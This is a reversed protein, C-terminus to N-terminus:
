RQIIPLYVSYHSTIPTPSSTVSTPSPTVTTSPTPSPTMSTSPFVCISLFNWTCDSGTEGLATAGAFLYSQYNNAGDAIYVETKKSSTQSKFIAFLDPKNDHNFDLVNFTWNGDPIESLITPQHALFTQYGDSGNLVHLETHGSGTGTKQIAYIDPRSDNNYDNVVFDWDGNSGTDGLATATALIYTQYNDAGNAIYVEASNSNTKSRFIAYLDPHRDNNYDAVAFAWTGDNGTEGLITSQNALFSQYHDIGNLIHLETKGSGTGSKFITYLDPVGDTNYDGLGFAWANDKGTEGQATAVQALFSQYNDAGNLIHVDTKGSGSGSRFVAFIDPKGDGNYDNYVTSEPVGTNTSYLGITGEELNDYGQISTKYGTNPLDPNGNIVQFHIHAGWSNGKSGCVGIQEGQLVRKGKVIGITFSNLHLYNTRFEGVDHRIIVQGVIPDLKEITGTESALVPKDLCSPSATNPVFDVAWLNFEPFNGVAHKSWGNTIKWEQGPAFPLKLSLGPIVALFSDNRQGKGTENAAMIGSHNLANFYITVILMCISTFLINTRITLKLGTRRM